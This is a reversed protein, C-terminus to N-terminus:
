YGLPHRFIRIWLSRKCVSVTATVATVIDNDRRQTTSDSVSACLKKTCYWPVVSTGTPRRCVPVAQRGDDDSTEIHCHLLLNDSLIHGPAPMVHEPWMALIAEFDFRSLAQPLPVRLGPMPVCLVLNGRGHCFSRSGHRTLRSKRTAPVVGPPYM